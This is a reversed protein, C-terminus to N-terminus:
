AVVGLKTERYGASKPLADLADTDGYLTLDFYTEEGFPSGTATSIRITRSNGNERFAHHLEIRTVNHATIDMM